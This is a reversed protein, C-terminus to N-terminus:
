QFEEYHPLYDVNTLSISMKGGDYSIESVLFRENDIGLKDNRVLVVDEVNLHPLMTCEVKVSLGKISQMKLYMEAYADVNEQGYGFMDEQTPAVRYGVKSVRVPSQPNDNQVTSVYSKGDFDEGWVTVRNKVSSFDHETSSTLYEVTSEEDFEWMPAKNKFEFDSSGRTLVLHGWNDYYIRCRVSNALDLFADGFYAGTSLELDEGIEIDRTDFDILPAIPDTPTNNGKDQGLMDTFIKSVKNGLDIKTANELCSAGIESTLLGFKDVASVSIVDNEQSLNTVAYVGKSFWYVDGTSNDKLGKYVKIKNGLWFPSNENASYKDEKNYIDFSLKGQVGQNYNISIKDSDIIVDDTIDYVTYELHDLAEVKFCPTKSESKALRVYDQTYVDYYEM